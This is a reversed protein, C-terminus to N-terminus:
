ASIARQPATGPAWDVLGPQTDLAWPAIWLEVASPVELEPRSPRLKAVWEASVRVERLASPALWTAVGGTRDAPRLKEAGAQSRGDSRRARAM